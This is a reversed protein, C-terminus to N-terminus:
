VRINKKQKNARVKEIQLVYPLLESCRPHTADLPSKNWQENLTGKKFQNVCEPMQFDLLEKHICRDEYRLLPLLDAQKEHAREFAVFDSKFVDDAFADHGYRFYRMKTRFRKSKHNAVIHTAEHASIYHQANRLDPHDVNFSIKPCPMKETTQEFAITRPNSQFYEKDCGISVTRPDIGAQRLYKTTFHVLREGVCAEDHVGVPKMQRKFDGGAADPYMYCQDDCQNAIKELAEDEERYLLKEICEFTECQALEPKTHLRAQAFIEKIAHDNHELHEIVSDSASIALNILISFLLSHLFM